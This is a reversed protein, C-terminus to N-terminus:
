LVFRNPVEHGVRHFIVNSTMRQMEQGVPLVTSPRGLIYVGELLM